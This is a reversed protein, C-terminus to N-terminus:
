IVGGKMEKYLRRRIVRWLADEKTREKGTEKRWQDNTKICLDLLQHLDLSEIEKENIQAEKLKSALQDALTPKKIKM